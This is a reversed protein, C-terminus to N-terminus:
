KKNDREARVNKLMQDLPLEDWGRDIILQKNKDIITGTYPSMDRGYIRERSVGLRKEEKVIREEFSDSRLTVSSDNVAWAGITDKGIRVEVGGADLLVSNGRVYITYGGATPELRISESSFGASEAIPNLVDTIYKNTWYAPNAEGVIGKPMVPLDTSLMKMNGVRVTNKDYHEQAGKAAEAASSSAGTVLNFLAWNRTLSALRIKNSYDKVGDFGPTYYGLTELFSTGTIEDVALQVDKTLSSYQASTVGLGRIKAMGVAVERISRGAVLQSSALEMQDYVKTDGIVKEMYMPNNKNLEAFNLLRDATDQPVDGIAKGEKGITVESLTTSLNQLDTRMQRDILDNQAFRSMRTVSDQDRTAVDLLEYAKDMFESQTMKRFTGDKSHNGLGGNVWLNQVDDSALAASMSALNQNDQQQKINAFLQDSTGKRLSTMTSEQANLITLKSSAPLYAEYRKWLVEFDNLKKGTLHGDAALLHFSQVEQQWNKVQQTNFNGKAQETFLASQDIGVIDRMLLGDSTRSDLMANLLDKNGGPVLSKVADMLIKKGSEKAVVGNKVLTEYLDTILQAGEEPTGKFLQPDSVYSLKSRIASSGEVLADNLQEQDNSTRVFESLASRSENFSKDYGKVTFSDMGGLAESRINTFYTDFEASSNFKLKGTSLDSKIQGVTDTLMRNGYINRIAAAFVPSESPLVARDQIAKSLSDTSTGNAWTLADEQIKQTRSEALSALPAQTAGLAAALQLSKDAGSNFVQTEMQPASSRQLRVPNNQYQPQVRTAM